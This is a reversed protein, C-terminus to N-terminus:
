ETGADPAHVAYLAFRRYQEPRYRRLIPGSRSKTPQNANLYRYLFRVLIIRDHRFVENFYMIIMVFKLREGKLCLTM